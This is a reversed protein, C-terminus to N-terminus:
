HLPPYIENMLEYLNMGLLKKSLENIDTALDRLNSRLKSSFMGYDEADKCADRVIEKLHPNDTEKEYPCKM